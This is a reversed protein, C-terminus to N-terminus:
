LSVDRLDHHPSRHAHSVHVVKYCDTRHGDLRRCVVPNYRSVVHTHYIQSFGCSRVLLVFAGRFSLGELRKEWAGIGDLVGASSITWFVLLLPLGPAVPFYYFRNTTEWTLAAAVM